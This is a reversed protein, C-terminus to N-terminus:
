SRRATVLCENHKLILALASVTQKLQNTSSRTQHVCTIHTLSRLPYFQTRRPPSSDAVLRTQLRSPQQERQNREAELGKARDKRLLFIAGGNRRTANTRPPTTRVPSVETRLSPPHSFSFHSERQPRQAASTTSFKVETISRRQQPQQANHHEFIQVDDRVQSRLSGEVQSVSPAALGHRQQCGHPEDRQQSKAGKAVCGKCRHAPLAQEFAARGARATRLHSSHQQQAGTHTSDPTVARAHAPTLSQAPQEVLAPFCVRLALASQCKRM